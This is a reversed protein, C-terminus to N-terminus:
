CVAHALGKQMMCRERGPAEPPSAQWCRAWASPRRRPTTSRGDRRRRATWPARWLRTGLWRASTGPTFSRSLHRWTLVRMSRCMGCATRSPRVATALTPTDSRLAELFLDLFHTLPTGGSPLPPARPAAAFAAPLQAALGRQGAQVCALRSMLIIACAAFSSASPQKSARVACYLLAGRLVFLDAEAPAAPRAAEALVAAFAAVDAGRAFQASAAALAPAGVCDWLFRALADHLAAAGAAGDAHLHPVPNASLRQIDRMACLACPM